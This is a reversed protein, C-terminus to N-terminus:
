AFLGQERRAFYERALRVRRAQPAEKRVKVPKLWVGQKVAMGNVASATHRPFRRAFDARSIGSEHLSKMLRIEVTTWFVKTAM